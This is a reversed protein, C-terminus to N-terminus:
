SKNMIIDIRTWGLVPLFALSGLSRRGGKARAGRTLSNLGPVPKTSGEPLINWRLCEM